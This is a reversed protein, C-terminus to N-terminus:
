SRILRLFSMGVSSGTEHRPGYNFNGERLTLGRWVLTETLTAFLPDLAEVDLSLYIFPKWALMRWPWRLSVVSETGVNFKLM